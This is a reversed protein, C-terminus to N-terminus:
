GVHRGARRPPAPRPPAPITLGLFKQGAFQQALPVLQPPLPDMNFGEALADRVVDNTIPSLEKMEVGKSAHTEVIRTDLNARTNRRSM